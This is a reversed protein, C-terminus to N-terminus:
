SIRTHILTSPPTPTFSPPESCRPRPSAGFVTEEKTTTKRLASNRHCGWGGSPWLAMTIETDETGVRNNLLPALYHSLAGNPPLM